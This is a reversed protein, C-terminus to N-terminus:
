RGALGPSHQQGEMFALLRDAAAVAREPDLGLQAMATELHPATPATIRLTTGDDPHPLAIEKAMLMLRPPLKLREPFAAPGGYKGDGLIPTGMMACHVRLQHTRGTMPVLILWAAKKQYSQVVQFFSLAAKGDDAPGVKEGSPRATKELPWDLRGRAVPPVGAVLAWYVKQATKDRFADGLRRAALRNRGLLLVGATDKDLRHVLKPKEPAEFRLAELLGDLHRTQGSGGQVALGAPKDLGLVWDDRYLVRRRLEEREKNSVPRSPVADSKRRAAEDLPPVRVTQGAQLRTSSKARKGEVRIQGGRLLKELQGHKVSPFHRKFWRDLRCDGDDPAVELLQVQSM